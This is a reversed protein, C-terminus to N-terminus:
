DKILFEVAELAAGITGTGSISKWEGATARVWIGCDEDVCIFRGKYELALCKKDGASAAKPSLCFGRDSLVDTIYDIVKRQEIGAM